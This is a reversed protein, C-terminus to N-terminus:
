KGEVVLEGLARAVGSALGHATMPPPIVSVGPGVSAPEEDILLVPLDVDLQMVHNLLRECERHGPSGKIVMLSARRSVADLNQELHAPEGAAVLYGLDDLVRAAMRLEQGDEAVLVITPAERAPPEGAPEPAPAEDPAEQGDLELADARPLVLTLVVDGAPSLKSSVRGGFTQAVEQPLEPHAAAAPQGGPGAPAQVLVAACRLTTDDPAHGPEAKALTRLTVCGDGVFDGVTEVMTMIVQEVKSPSGTVRLGGDCLFLELPVRQPLLNELTSRISDLRRNLDFVHGEGFHQRSVALLRQALESARLAASKVQQLDEHLQSGASIDPLNLEVYGLIATLLNNFELAISGALHGVAEMQEQRASPRDVSGRDAMGTCAIWQLDGHEDNVRSVLWRVRRARNGVGTLGTSFAATKKGDDLKRFYRGVQARHPPPVFAECFPMGSVEGMSRGLVEEAPGNVHIIQRRSDLVVILTGAAALVNEAFRGENSADAPPAM